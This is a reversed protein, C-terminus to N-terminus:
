MTPAFRPVKALVLAFPPPPVAVRVTCLLVLRAKVTDLDRVVVVVVVVLVEGVLVVVLLVDVVLVGVVLVVVMLEEDVLVVVGAADEVGDVVVTVTVDVLVEILVIVCLGVVVIREATGATEV